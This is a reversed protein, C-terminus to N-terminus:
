SQEKGPSPTQTTTIQETLEEFKKQHKIIQDVVGLVEETSMEEDLLKLKQEASAERRMPREPDELSWPDHVVRNRRSALRQTCQFFDTLEKNLSIVGLHKVLSIFAQLKARYGLLNATFCVGVKPSTDALAICADDIMREFFSWETAVRGIAAYHDTTLENRRKEVEEAWIKLPTPTGLIFSEPTRRQPQPQDVSQKGPPLM